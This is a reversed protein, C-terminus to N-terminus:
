WNGSKFFKNKRWKKSLRYQAGTGIHLYVCWLANFLLTPATNACPALSSLPHASTEAQIPKRSSTVSSLKSPTENQCRQSLHILSYFAIQLSSSFDLSLGFLRPQYPLDLPLPFTQKFLFLNEPFLALPVQLIVPCLAFTLYNLSNAAVGMQEGLFLKWASVWLDGTNKM